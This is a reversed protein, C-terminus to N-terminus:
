IDNLLGNLQIVKALAQKLSESTLRIYGVAVFRKGNFHWAFTHSLWKKTSSSRVNVIFRTAKFCTSKKM